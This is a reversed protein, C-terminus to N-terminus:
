HLYSVLITDGVAPEDINGLASLLVQNSELDNNEFAYIPDYSGDLISYKYLSIKYDTGINGDCDEVDAAKILKLGVLKVVNKNSLSILFGKFDNSESSISIEEEVYIEQLSVPYNPISNHNLVESTDNYELTKFVLHDNTRKSSVRRIEYANENSLRDTAGSSRTRQEDAVSVSIYNDSLVEGLHKQAQFVEEAQATIINNVNSNELDYIKPVNLFMRDRVPNYNRLGVFFLDRSVDDNILPLGKASLFDSGEADVLRLVYFNGAVQPSTTVIVYSDEVIIKKIELNNVNGSISEVIFNDKVLLDSPEKNFVVKLETSSPISFSIPRLM